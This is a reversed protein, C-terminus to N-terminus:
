PNPPTEGSIQTLYASLHTVAMRHTLALEGAHQAMRSRRGNYAALAELATVLAAVVTEREESLGEADTYLGNAAEVALGIANEAKSLLPNKSGETTELLVSLGDTVRYEVTSSLQAIESRPTRDAEMRGLVERLQEDVGDFRDLADIKEVLGSM